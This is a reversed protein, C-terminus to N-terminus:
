CAPETLAAPEQAGFRAVLLAGTLCLLGAAYFSMVAPWRDVLPTLLNLLKGDELSLLLFGAGVLGGTALRAGRGLPRWVAPLALVLLAICLWSAYHQWAMPALLLTLALGICSDLLWARRRDRAPQLGLRAILLLGLVNAAWNLAGIIAYSPAPDGNGLAERGVFFRAHESPLPINTGRVTGPLMAPVEVRAFHWWPALGTFPLTVLALLSATIGAVVLARWRGHLLYVLPLWVSLPKVVLAAGLAAGAELERRMAAASISLVFLLILLGDQQGFRISEQWPWYTAGAVLAGALWWRRGEPPALRVIFVGMAALWLLQNVLFFVLHATDEPLLTLPGFLLVLTTPLLHVRDAWVPIEDHYPMIGQLLDRAGGLNVHLDTQRPLWQTYISANVYIAAAIALVVPPLAQRARVQALAPRRRALAAIWSITQGGLFLLATYALLSQRAPLYTTAVHHSVDDLYLAPAACAPPLLALLPWAGRQWRRWGRQRSALATLWWAALGALLAAGWVVLWSRSPWFVATRGVVLTAVLVAAGLLAALALALELWALAQRLGARAAPGIAWAVAEGQDRGAPPFLSAPEAPRAAAPGAGRRGQSPADPLAPTTM